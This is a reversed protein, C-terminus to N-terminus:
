HKVVLKESIVENGIRANIIYIGDKWVQTNLKYTKDKLKIVKAKLEQDTGYVVFEWESSSVAGDTKAASLLEITTEFTAPNPSILLSYTSCDVYEVETVCWEGTGCNNTGRVWFLYYGPYLQSYDLSGTGSYTTYQAIVTTEDMRTLKIEYSNSNCSTLEFTNGAQNTCLYGQGEASNSFYIDGANIMPAGLCVDIRPIAIPDCYPPTVTAEIWGTGDSDSTFTKPNGSQNDFTLGSSCTWSVTAGESNNVTFQAGFSCVLSPGTIQPNVVFTINNGSETILQLDKQTSTGAWSRLAPTTTFNFSCQNTNGPFQCGGGNIVGYSAPDSTPNQTASACVPYLRQPHTTNIAYRDSEIDKHVHWVLMGHGPLSADFGLQQRNEILFYEGSTSTPIKYFSNNFANAPYLTVLVNNVSLDNASAWVFTNIKTYPNIHAPSSGWAGWSGNWSGHAMLDWEGSGNFQGGTSGDIDYLDPAGLVHGFEHCATGITAITSGSIGRLESSCSYIKIWKNDLKIPSIQSKKSWIADASVGTQAQDYGAFIVHVGDVYGDGDSDYDAYNVDPNAKQVAEAILEGIRIDRDSSSNDAGYYAMNNNATYPGAVTIDLNLQGYSVESYYDRVSGTASNANYGVENMLNNFETQTKSFSVDTFGILICLVKRTGTVSTQVSSSIEFSKLQMTKSQQVSLKTKIQLQPISVIFATEDTSREDVNKVQVGSLIIRGDDNLTAYEFIGNKNKIISYGDTTEIWGFFEDGKQVIILKSGNPQTIEVPYPYATVAFLRITFLSLIVTILITTKM